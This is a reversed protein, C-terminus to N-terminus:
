TPAAAQRSARVVNGAAQTRDPVQGPQANQQANQPRAYNTAKVQEHVTEMFAATAPLNDRLFDMGGPLNSFAWAQAFLEERLEDVGMAANVKNGSNLPYALLQSLASDEGFYHDILESVVSGPKMAVVEGNRRRLNFEPSGSFTTTSDHITDVAHGVEHITATIATLQEEM